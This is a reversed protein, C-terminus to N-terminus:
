FSTAYLLMQHSPGFINIHKGMLIPLGQHELKPIILNPKEWCFLSLCNREGSRRLAGHPQPPLTKVHSALYTCAGKRGLLLDLAANTLGASMPHSTYCSTLHSNEWQRQIEASSCASSFVDENQLPSLCVGALSQGPFVAERDARGGM